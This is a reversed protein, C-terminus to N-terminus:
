RSRNKRTTGVAASALGDRDLRWQAGVRVVPLEGRRALRRVTQESVRLLRAAEPVTLFEEPGTTPTTATEM